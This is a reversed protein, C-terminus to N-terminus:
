PIERKSRDLVPIKFVHAKPKMNYLVTEELYPIKFHIGEKYVKDKFGQTKNNVLGVHNPPVELNKTFVM